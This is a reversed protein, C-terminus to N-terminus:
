QSANHRVKSLYYFRSPRLAICWHTFHEESPSNEYINTKLYYKVLSPRGRQRLHCRPLCVGPPGNMAISNFASTVPN